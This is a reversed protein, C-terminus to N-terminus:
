PPVIATETVIRTGFRQLKRATQQSCHYRTMRMTLELNKDLMTGEVVIAWSQGVIPILLGGNILGIDPIIAATAAGVPFIDLGDVLFRVNSSTSTGFPGFPNVDFVSRWDPGAAGGLDTDEPTPVSKIDIATIILGSHAPIQESTSFGADTGSFITEKHLFLSHQFDRPDVGALRSLNLIQGAVDVHVLSSM